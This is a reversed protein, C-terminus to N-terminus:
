CITVPYITNDDSDLYVDTTFATACSTLFYNAEFGNVKILVSMLDDIDTGPQQDEGPRSIVDSISCERCCAEVGCDVPIDDGTGTYANDDYFIGTSNNDDIQEENGEDVTHPSNSDNEDEDESFIDDEDDFYDDMYTSNNNNVDNENNNEERSSPVDTTYFNYDGEHELDTDQEPSRDITYIDDYNGEEEM